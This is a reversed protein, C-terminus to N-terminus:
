RSDEQGRLREVAELLRGPADVGGVRRVSSLLEALREPEERTLEVAARAAAQWDPRVWYSKRIRREARRQVRISM